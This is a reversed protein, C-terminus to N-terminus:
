GDSRAEHEAILTAVLANLHAIVADKTTLRDILMTKTDLRLQHVESGAAWYRAIPRSFEDNDLLVELLSKPAETSLELAIRTRVAAPNKILKMSTDVYADHLWDNAINLHSAGSTM